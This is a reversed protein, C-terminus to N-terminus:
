AVEGKIYRQGHVRLVADLYISASYVEEVEM